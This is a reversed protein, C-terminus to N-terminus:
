EIPYGESRWYAMHGELTRVKGFGANELISEAKRARPGQECYVVVSDKKDVPIDSVRSALATHPIHLAGPVHGSDFEWKTRVDLILPATNDDLQQALTAPNMPAVHAGFASAAMLGALLATIIRSVLM